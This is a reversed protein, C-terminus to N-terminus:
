MKLLAPRRHDRCSQRTIQTGDWKFSWFRAACFDAYLYCGYLSPIESGRYVEGGIIACKGDTHPYTFVPAVYTPDNCSLCGSGTFNTCADGELCRWGMNKGPATGAPLIDIEEWDLAGVDGIYLDDNLPDFSFRWPQRLGYVWVHEDVGPQGVFPNDSPVYPAPSDIDLRLIKGFNTSLDQAFNDVNNSVEVGDGMSVYMMGDPGFKVCDWNHINAPQATPGLVQIRSSPDAVEPDSSVQYEALHTDQNLDMYLVFFRGNNQYDPHFAFCTGAENTTLEASLDLFLGPNPVGNKVIRIGRRREFVFLRTDDGPAQALFGPNQLGFAIRRTALEQAGTLPSIAATLLAFFLLRRM